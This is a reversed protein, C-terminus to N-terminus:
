LQQSQWGAGPNCPSITLFQLAVPVPWILTIHALLPGGHNQTNKRLSVWLTNNSSIFAKPGSLVESWLASNTEMKLLYSTEEYFHYCPLDLSPCLIQIKLYTWLNSQSKLSPSSESSWFLEQKIVRLSASWCFGYGGLCQAFFKACSDRNGAEM